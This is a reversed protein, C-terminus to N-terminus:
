SKIELKRKSIALNNHFIIEDDIIETYCLDKYAGPNIFYIGNEIFCEQIHTHGFICINANVSMAKYILRLYDMKVNYLHGHTIFITLNNIKIVRELEGKSDCNGRVLSVGNSVLFDDEEGYDGAHLVFDYKSLDLAIKKYHNDSLILIKM